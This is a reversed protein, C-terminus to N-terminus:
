TLVRSDTDADSQKREDHCGRIEQCPFSRNVAQTGQGFWGTFSLGVIETGLALCGKSCNERM